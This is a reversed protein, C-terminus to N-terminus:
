FGQQTSAPSYPYPLLAYPLMNTAPSCTSGNQLIFPHPQLSHELSQEHRERLPSSLHHYQSSGIMEQSPMPARTYYMAPSEALRVPLYLMQPQDQFAGTLPSGAGIPGRTTDYGSLIDHHPSRILTQQFQIPSPTYRRESYSYALSDHLPPPEIVFMTNKRLWRGAVSDFVTDPVHYPTDALIPHQPRDNGYDCNQMMSFGAQPALAQFRDADVKHDRKNRITSPADITSFDKPDTHCTDHQSHKRSDVKM